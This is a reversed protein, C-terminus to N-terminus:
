GLEQVLRERADNDQETIKAVTLPANDMVASCMSCYITGLTAIHGCQSCSAKDDSPADMIALMVPWSTEAPLGHNDVLLPREAVLLEGERAAADSSSQAVSPTLPVERHAVDTSPRAIDPRPPVDRISM